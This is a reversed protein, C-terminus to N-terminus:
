NTDNFITSPVFISQSNIIIFQILFSSINPLCTYPLYKLM